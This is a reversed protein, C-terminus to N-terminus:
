SLNFRRPTLREPVAMEPKSYSVEWGVLLVPSLALPEQSCAALGLRWARWNRRYVRSRALRRGHRVGQRVRETILPIYDGAATVGATEPAYKRIAREIYDGSRTGYYGIWYEIYPCGETSRGVAALEADAAACVAARLADLFESKKMQGPSLESAEDEVLL